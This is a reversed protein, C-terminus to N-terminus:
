DRGKIKGAALRCAQWVAPFIQKKRSVVGPAKLIGGECQYPLGDQIVQEGSALILSDHTAIDTVVLLALDSETRQRLAELAEGLEEQRESFHDVGLEEIQSISVKMGEEFFEKRDTNMVEEATGTILLSGVAFFDRTFKDPDIGAIPALWALIERDLDTTTPSTLLLTDSILGACLCMAVGQPPKLGRHMFKRAVLTSTSGVPENLFRIPERSVLDGSLRHHDIVEVVDAEDVGTVAQAFENHDVLVLQTRWPEVLDSKSLVGTLQKTGRAVVPFLDQSLGALRKRLGSIVEGEEVVEFEGAVVGSVQRSCSVLKAVSATDHTALLVTVEQERALEILDAPIDFGGTVILGKVGREIALKQIGPRDGCIVVYNGVQGAEKAAKLRRVVSEESSAGVLLHLDEEEGSECDAGVITAQLTACINTLSATVTRVAIGEMEAPLLLQLLDLYHLLGKVKGNADVVPVSRVGSQVMQRYATLFTDDMSVSVVDRRAVQGATVRVDTVLRPPELGAQQLVWKTRVPIEGCRIAEAEGGTMRLFEAHGIASCIADTDPNKHGVVLLRESANKM